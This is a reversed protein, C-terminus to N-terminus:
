RGTARMLMYAQALEQHVRRAEISGASKAAAREALERAHCYDLWDADKRIAPKAEPVNRSAWDDSFTVISSAGHEINV